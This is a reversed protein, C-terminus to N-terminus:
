NLKVKENKLKLERKKEREIRRLEKELAKQKKEEEKNVKQQFVEDATIVFYGNKMNRNQKASQAKNPLPFHKDMIEEPSAFRKVCKTKYMFWTSYVGDNISVGSLYAACYKSLTAPLLSSEIVELAKEDSVKDMTETEPVQSLIGDAMIRYPLEVTEVNTPVLFDVCPLDLADETDTDMPTATLINQVVSSDDTLNELTDTSVDAATEFPSVASPNADVVANTSNPNVGAAIENTSITEELDRDSEGPAFAVDPIATPDFPHIGTARFGSCINEPTISDAWAKGFVRLFSSHGLSAGTHKVFNDVHANWSNKLSKFVARDFPQTWNSTHSPLEGLIIGEARAIKLFETSNHSGHGDFILLQPRAPGINPLFHDKLWLQGIGEKTWGSDSVSFKAGHIPSTPDTCSEIDFGHVKKTTKGPVIFYPPISRGIANGCAIVTITERSISAKGHVTKTGKAAIVKQPKNAAQIGTEDMNWVREPFQHFNNQDLVDKLASFYTGIRQRTMAAHRNAATPEPNRLSFTPHRTKLRRWWM